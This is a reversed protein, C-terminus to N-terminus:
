QVLRVIQTHAITNPNCNATSMYAGGTMDLSQAIVESCTTNTPQTTGSFSVSTKPFYMAGGLTIVGNGGINVSGTAQDDILVGNLPSTSAPDSSAFLNFNGGNITLRSSGLLVLTVGTAVGTTANVSCTPCQVTGGFSLTANYFVYTGPTLNLTGGSNVSLNGYAPGTPNPSMTSLTQGNTVNCNNGNGGCPNTSGTTSNISNTQLGQLPDMASPMFYDHPVGPSACTSSPSCGTAGFVGWGSGTFTPTSAFQVSADSMIACGTGNNSSNGGLKLAGTGNNPDPGLSLACLQTPQYVQAIAQSRINVTTFGLVSALYAPQQQSVQARVANGNSAPPTTFTGASYDGIDIQVVRSIGGPLSTSCTSGPYSTDGANCFGNQAAFEKGRYDVSHADCAAGQGSITCALRLAGSYAAADAGNQGHQKTVYWSVAEAGLAVVGVLPVLAAATAFAVSGRRRRLLDRM